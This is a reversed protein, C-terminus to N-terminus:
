ISESGSRLREVISEEPTVYVTNFDVYNVMGPKAGKPKFVNKVATYDVAVNSSEKGKSYYAALMAAEVLTEESAKEGDKIVVHSGAIAKTHLWLDGRKALKLTLFDNQKNNKGVLIKYGESSTFELPQIKGSDEKKKPNKEKAAPKLYNEKILEQEIEKLDELGGSEIFHLLSDLYNLENRVGQINERVIELGRKAKSHRKYYHQSNAIPSLSPDLKISDEQSTYYNFLTVESMGKKIQHLNSMLLDGIEKYQTSNEYNNLEGELTKLKKSLKKYLKSIVKNLASKAKEVKEKREKSDYFDKVLSIFNEYEKAEYKNEYSKLSMCYFDFEVGTQRNLYMVPIYSTSEIFNNYDEIIQQAQEDSLEGLIFHKYPSNVLFEKALVPSGYPFYKIIVKELPLTEDGISSLLLERYNFGKSLKNQQPPLSYQGGVKLERNLSSAPKLLGLITNTDEQYFIMNSHKGMLELSLIWQAVYGEPHRGQFHFNIIRENEVYSVESIKSGLLYKRLLMCFSSPNTPNQPLQNTFRFNNSTASCDIRLNVTEGPNRLTITIELNDPQYIKDVRANTILKQADDIYKSLFLIDFM